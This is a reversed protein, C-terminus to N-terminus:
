QPCEAKASYRRGPCSGSSRFTKGDCGCYPRLDMTCPRARPMCKGAVDCGMGECIGSECDEGAQCEGGDAMKATAAVPQPEAAPPSAPVQQAACAGLWLVVVMMMKM